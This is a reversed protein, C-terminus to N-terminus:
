FINFYPFIKTLFSVSPLRPAMLPCQSCIHDFNVAYGYSIELSYTKFCQKLTSREYRSKNQRYYYFLLGSKWFRLKRKTIPSGHFNPQKYQTSILLVGLRPFCLSHICAFGVLLYLWTQFTLAMFFDSYSGTLAIKHAAVRHSICRWDM